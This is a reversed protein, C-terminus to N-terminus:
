PRAISLAAQGDVLGDLDDLLEEGAQAGRV